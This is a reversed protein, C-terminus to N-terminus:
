KFPEYIRVVVLLEDGPNIDSTLTSSTVDEDRDYNVRKHNYHKKPIQGSRKRSDIPSHAYLSSLTRLTQLARKPLQLRSLGVPRYEKPNYPRIRLDHPSGLQDLSVSADLEAFADSNEASPWNLATEATIHRADLGPFSCIDSRFEAFRQSLNIIPSINKPLYIKDMAM